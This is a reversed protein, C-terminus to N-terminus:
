KDAKYSSDHTWKFYHSGQKQYLSPQMHNMQRLGFIRSNTSGHEM